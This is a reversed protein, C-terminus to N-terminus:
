QVKKKLNAPANVSMVGASKFFYQPNGEADWADDLRWVELAVPKLRLVTGDSLKYESWREQSETIEVLEADREPQGPGISIKQRM